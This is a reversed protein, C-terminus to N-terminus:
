QSTPYCKSPLLFGLIKLELNRDGEREGSGELSCDQDDEARMIMRITPSMTVTSM